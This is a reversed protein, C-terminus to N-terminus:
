ARNVVAAALAFLGFLAFYLWHGKVLGDALCALGTAVWLLAMMMSEEGALLALCWARGEWAAM